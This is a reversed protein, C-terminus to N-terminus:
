KCRNHFHIAVTKISNDHCTVFQTTEILEDTDKPYRETIIRFVIM